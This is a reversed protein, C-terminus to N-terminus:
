EKKIFMRTRKNKEETWNREKKREKKGKANM